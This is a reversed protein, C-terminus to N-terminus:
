VGGGIQGARAQAWYGRLEAHLADHIPGPPVQALVEFARDFAAQAQALDGSGAYALGLEGLTNALSKADGLREWLRVGQEGAQVAARWQRQVRYTYALNNHVMALHLPDELRRFVSEALAFLAVADALKEQLVYVIGLNMRAIAQNAPDPVQGLRTIAQRIMDAAEAYRGACRLTDGLNQLGWAIRQTDGAQQWIRLATRHHAIAQDWQRQDQAVTGLVWFSTARELDHPALLGLATEVAAQAAAYRSQLRAVYASQNLALAHGRHDHLAACLAASHELATRAQAFDGVLRYLRGLHLGLRSEAACDHAQRAAAVGQELLSIWDHRPGTHELPPALTLLLDRTAPWAAPFHLAYRLVHWAQERVEPALTGEGLCLRAHLATVSRQVHRAFLDGYRGPADAPASTVLGAAM